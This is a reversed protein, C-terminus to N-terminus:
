DLCSKRVDVGETAFLVAGGCLPPCASGLDTGRLKFQGPSGPGPGVDILRTNDARSVLCTKMSFDAGKDVKAWKEPEAVPVVEVFDNAGIGNDSILADIQDFKYVMHGDTNAYIAQFSGNDYKDVVINDQFYQGPGNRWANLDTFVTADFKGGADLVYLPASPISYTGEIGSLHMCVASFAFSLAKSASDLGYHIVLGPTHQCTDITAKLDNYSGVEFQITDKAISTHVSPTGFHVMDTFEKEACELETKTVYPHKFVLALSEQENETRAENTPQDKNGGNCGALLLAAISSAYLSSKSLFQLLEM